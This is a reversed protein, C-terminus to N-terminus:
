KDHLVWVGDWDAEPPTELFYRCREIYMESPADGSRLAIAAEFAAIAAHWNRARYASLGDNFRQLLGPLHPEVGALYGLVEYVAVPRDKGKVKILDVERSPTTTKM